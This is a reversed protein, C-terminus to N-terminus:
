GCRDIAREAGPLSRIPRVCAYLDLQRRLGLVPSTYGPIGAPTTVAGLLTADAGRALALTADPLPTGHEQYAGYGIDGSSFDLRIESGRSVAELVRVAEATVQPGIGDGGLLCIKM